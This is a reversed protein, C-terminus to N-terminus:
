FFSFIRNILQEIEYAFFPNMRILGMVINSLIIIAVIIIYVRVISKGIHKGADRPVPNTQSTHRRQNEDYSTATENNKLRESWSKVKYEKHNHKKEEFFGKENDYVKQLRYEKVNQATPYDCYPCNYKSDSYRTECVTCKIMGM